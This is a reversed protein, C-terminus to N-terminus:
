VTEKLKKFQDCKLSVECYNECRINEGPRYEVKSGLLNKAHGKAESETDHLKVAKIRGPMMVAYVPPKAWREEDSCEPLDKKASEHLRVREKIFDLALKEPWLPVNVVIVQSQPYRSDRKAELKSWDRLLGVLELKDISRGNLRALAAYCNLQEEFNRPAKGDKFKYATVFKFDTITKDHLFDVQGSVRVNDVNGFFRIESEGVGTNAREIISHVIQGYLSWVNDSVDGELENHHKRSLAVVRPPDLLTTVSYDAGGNTYPDNRIANVLAQPLKFRNLLKV